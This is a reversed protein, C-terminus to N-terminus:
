STPHKLDLKMGYAPNGVLPFLFQLSLLVPSGADMARRTIPESSL